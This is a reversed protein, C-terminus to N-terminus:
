RGTSDLIVLANVDLQKLGIATLNEDLFARNHDHAFRYTDAWNAWSTASQALQNFSRDLALDIRRMAAQADSRELDTFSPILVSNAVYIESVGLVALLTAVLLGVKWRINM